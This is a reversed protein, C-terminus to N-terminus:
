NIIVVNNEKDLENGAHVIELKIENVSIQKLLLNVLMMKMGEGIDLSQLEVRRIESDDAYIIIESASSKKFGNNRVSMNINLYRNDLEFSVDEFTLDPLTEFTYLTNITSPIDEGITQKCNSVNYMINTPNLSHDFGLAHLIEHIAINPNACESNKILLVEGHTIVNFNGAKTINTPGGEGAVFLGGQILNKEDCAIHIEEGSSVPYFTLITNEEIIDFARETDDKKQINCSDEIRYSIEKEPYRMNDYFQMSVVAGSVGVSFNSHGYSTMNHFGDVPYFWYLALGGVLLIMLAILTIEKWGM